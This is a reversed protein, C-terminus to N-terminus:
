FHYTGAVVLGKLAVDLTSRNEERDVSLYRYSLGVTWLHSVDYGVDGHVQWDSKAGGGGADGGATFRLHPIITGSLRAGGLADWWDDRATFDRSNGNPRNVSLENKLGWYRAGTFVDFTWTANGVSYGVFPEILPLHIKLDFSGTDGRFAIAKAGSLSVYLADVGGVFWQRRAEAYVMAAFRLHRALDAFSVDVNATIPGAGVDGTISALWGYPM